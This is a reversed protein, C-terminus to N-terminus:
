QRRFRSTSKEVEKKKKKCVTASALRNFIAKRPDITNNIRSGLSPLSHALFLEIFFLYKNKIKKHIHCPTNTSAILNKGRVSDTETQETTSPEGDGDFLINIQWIIQVLYKLENADDYIHISLWKEVEAVSQLRYKSSLCMLYMPLSHVCPAHFPNFEIMVCACVNTREM